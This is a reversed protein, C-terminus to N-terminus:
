VALRLSNGPCIETNARSVYFFFNLAASYLIDQATHEQLPSLTTFSVIMAHAHYLSLPLSPLLPPDPPEDPCFTVADKRGKKMLLGGSIKDKEENKCKYKLRVEKETGGTRYKM